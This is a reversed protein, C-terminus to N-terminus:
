IPPLLLGQSGILILLAVASLTVVTYYLKGGTSGAGPRRWLAIMAGVVVVALILLALPLWLIPAAAPPLALATALTQDAVAAVIFGLLAVAFVLALLAFLLVLGKSIWRLRNDAPAREIKRESFARIVYAVPWVLFTSLVVLLLLGAALFVGLTRRELGNVGAILPLTVADPAIARAPTANALCSTDPPDNPNDLFGAMIDNVCPSLFAVGHSASPDVVVTANTLGAAAAAAFAPPTVPDFRGALLLTPIDSIVPDDVTAPLAPVAWRNCTDIYSQLDDRADAAIEPYLGEEAVANVDIDADEACIVSYYMGESVLQDFALLPWMAQLYRTDGQELDNVIKPLVANMRPVYLLQYLVSRLGRGDLYADYNQGTEPDTLTLTVPRQDYQRIVAFFRQELDPYAAACAPDATCAAFIERYVRDESQPTEAIFNVDTPVVSDLVVSRLGEPYNRMLHLGLLTGYSVGYFNYESYGLARAIVPVDAANELSNYASLDVNERRLREGCAAIAANYLKEGEGAPAALIEALAAETEPCSLDPEAYPTGRQNFIVIDRSAAMPTNPALLSYVAFADGGPGGQAVLLPDPAGGQARHIAVPLRITRGGAAEHREPVVVYGCEFGLAEGTLTTLGLDIGKFMCASPIFDGPAEQATARETPTLLAALLPLLLFLLHRLPRKPQTM